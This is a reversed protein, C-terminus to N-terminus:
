LIMSPYVLLISSIHNTIKNVDRWYRQYVQCFLFLIIAKVLGPDGSKFIPIIEHIM